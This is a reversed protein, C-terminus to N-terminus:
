ELIRLDKFVALTIEKRCNGFDARNQKRDQLLRTAFFYVGDTHELYGVWWGTNIGGERTWGTKARITYAPHQGAIMVRKVIEMNRKSFPLKGEYLNRLLTVQNVPSIGFAGFNWFDADPQSLNLNGYNCLKLYKRYNEKGIKKALEVFVWGASLEFAEKVTMDRYIDPRYGYKVTDTSGVWRVIDNEDAITNTELAILLNVIKFTSAPLTEQRVAVTDSLIWQKRTNDYLAISGETACADFYKRFDPRVSVSDTHTAMARPTASTLATKGSFYGLLLVMGLLLSAYKM